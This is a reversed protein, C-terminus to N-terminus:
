RTQGRDSNDDIDGSRRASDGTADPNTEYRSGLRGQVRELNALATQYDFRASVDHSRITTLGLQSTLLETIEAAGKEYRERTIRLAEDASEISKRTVQMREWAERAGLRAQVLEFGLRLRIKREQARAEDLERRAQRVRARRRLGDFVNWEANVGALYSQEMDSSVASDGDVSGFANFTPFYDRVARDYAQRRLLVAAAAAQLEPRAEISLATGEPAPDPPPGAPPAPLADNELVEAGVATNLAARALQEANRARILDERSQALQVDLNLVDSKVASGAQLRADAVRRHEELRALAESCVAVNEHAQLLTFYARTVEYALENKAAAWQWRSTESLTKAQLLDLRRRGGDWLRMQVTLDLRLNDTGGPHNFDTHAMDLARQNLTMMFAQPANDTRTLASSVTASPFYASRAADVAERAAGLRAGASEIDPSQGLAERVCAELTLPAPAAAQVGCPLLFFLAAFVPLFRKKM